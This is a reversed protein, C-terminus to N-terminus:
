TREELYRRSGVYKGIPFGPLIHGELFRGGGPLNGLVGGV